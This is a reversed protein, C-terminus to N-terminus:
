EYGEFEKYMQLNQTRDAGSQKSDQNAQMEIRDFNKRFKRMSEIVSKWFDSNKSDHLFIWDILTKIKAKERKDLRLMKDADDAWTQLRRNNNQRGYYHDPKCELIKDLLYKAIKYETDDVKWKDQNWITKEKGVSRERKEKNGNNVNNNTDGRSDRQQVKQQEDQQTNQQYYDYNNITIISTVFNKHQTIQQEDELDKLFKRVKKRNWQWRESLKKQSWGVQGRYIKIKNGRVYISDDSHNALLLLDVWAQGRTFPEGTWLSKDMLKRHISVWGKAM